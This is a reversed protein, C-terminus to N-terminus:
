RICIVIKRMSDVPVSAANEVLMACVAGPCAPTDRTDADWICRSASGLGDGGGAAVVPVPM